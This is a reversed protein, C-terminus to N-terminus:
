WRPPTTTGSIARGSGHRRCRRHAQGRGGLRRRREQRDRCRCQGEAAGEQRRAPRRRRHHRDQVPLRHHAPRPQGAFLRRVGGFPDRRDARLGADRLRSGSDDASLHHRPRGEQRQPHAPHQRVQLGRRAAASLHHAEIRVPRRGGLHDRDPRRAQRSAPRHLELRCQPRRGRVMQDLDQRARLLRERGQHLAQDLGVRKAQEAWFGNPDSVSRAYMERYKAQDVFARKAWEAPVDYIKDSM